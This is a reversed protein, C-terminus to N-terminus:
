NKKFHRMYWHWGVYDYKDKLDDEMYFVNEWRLPRLIVQDPHFKLMYNFYIEYESAGSGSHDMGPMSLFVEYFERNGHHKAVEGMIERIYKTEFVMHHCIGSKHKDMKTLGPLLYDMHTFYPPHYEIGWDMYPIDMTPDVFSTPNLFYTDSDIVLYRELGLVIGAYLKILQQLYWGNRPLPTHFHAVTDLSFPFAQAEDVVVVNEGLPPIMGVIISPCIIYTKGLGIINPLTTKLHESLHMIDNPGVPIVVDIM